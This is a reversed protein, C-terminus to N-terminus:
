NLLSIRLLSLCLSVKAVILFRSDEYSINMRPVDKDIYTGKEKNLFWLYNRNQLFELIQSSYQFFKGVAWLFSLITKLFM